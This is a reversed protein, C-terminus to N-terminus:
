QTSINSSIIVDMRKDKSPKKVNYRSDSGDVGPTGSAGISTDTAIESQTSLATLTTYQSSIIETNLHVDPMKDKKFELKDLSIQNVKTAYAKEENLREVKGQEDKSINAIAVKVDEETIVDGEGLVRTERSKAEQKSGDILRAIIDYQIQLLEYKVREDSTTIGSSNLLRNIPAVPAINNNNVSM